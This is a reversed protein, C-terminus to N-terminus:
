EANDKIFMCRAIHKPEERKCEKYISHLRKGVIACSLGLMVGIM